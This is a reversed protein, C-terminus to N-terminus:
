AGPPAQMGRVDFMLASLLLMMLVTAVAHVRRDKSVACTVLLVVVVLQLIRFAAFASRLGLLPETAMGWLTIFALVSFFTPSTDYYYRELDLSETRLDPVALYAAVVLAGPGLVVWAFERSTWVPLGRLEWLVWWMHLTLLLLMVIWCGHIWYARVRRRIPVYDGIGGLLRTMAMGLVVSLMVAVYDFVDTSM